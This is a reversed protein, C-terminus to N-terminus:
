PSTRVLVDSVRGEPDTPESIIRKLRKVDRDWYEAKVPSNYKEDEDKTEQLLVTQWEREMSVKLRHWDQVKAMHEVTFTKEQTDPDIDVASVLVLATEKDLRYQLTAGFHCYGYLNLFAEDDSLLCQAKASAVRFSQAALPQGEVGVSDMKTPTTGKVLLLVRHASVYTNVSTAVTLGSHDHVRGAPAALVIDGTVECLGLMDRLAKASVVADLPSEEILGIFVKTGANTARLVGRANVRSLMVNLNDSTLAERVQEQSELGYLKLMVEGVLDVDVAGSWDRLRAQSYLRKGDKTFIHEECTPVDIMCRNVQIIRDESLQPANALAAACTPFGESDTPILPRSATFDRTLKTLSEDPSTWRSLTQVIPGGQLVHAADWMNLKVHQGDPDRQASCGIITIGEGVTVSKIHEHAEDWVHVEVVSGEQDVLEMASVKRQRGAGMVTKPESLTQVKGTLNLLKPQRGGGSLTQTQAWSMKQLHELVQRLTMGVDVHTAVDKLTQLNTPPVEQLKTHKTLLLARKIPTSIYEPKMKSDFQPQQVRFVMGSKFKELAEQAADTAAFNFPVSGIMFQTPNGAVILCQFKEAQVSQGRSQFSYKILRPSLIRVVWSAHKATQVNMNKLTEM